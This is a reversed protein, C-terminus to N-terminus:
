TDAGDDQMMEYMEQYSFSEKSGSKDATLVFHPLFREVTIEKRIKKKARRRGDPESIADTWFRYTHGKKLKARVIARYTEKTIGENETLEM